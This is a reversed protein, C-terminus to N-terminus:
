IRVCTVPQLHVDLRLQSLDHVDSGPKFAIHGSEEVRNRYQANFQLWAPLREDLTQLPMAWPPGVSPQPSPTEILTNQAQAGCLSALCCAMMVWHRTPPFRSKSTM